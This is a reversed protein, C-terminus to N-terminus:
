LKKFRTFLIFGINCLIIIASMLIIVPVTKSVCQMMPNKCAGIFKTALLIMFIAMFINSISVLFYNSRERFFLCLVGNIFLMACLVSVSISMYHCKMYKGNEMPPCTPFVFNILVLTIIALLIIAIGFFKKNM